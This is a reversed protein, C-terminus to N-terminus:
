VGDISEQRIMGQSFISPQVNFQFGGIVLVRAIQHANNQAVGLVPLYRDILIGIRNNDQNM